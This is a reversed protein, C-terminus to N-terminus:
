ENISVEEITLTNGNYINLFKPENNYQKISNYGNIKLLYKFRTIFAEVDTVAFVVVDLERVVLSYVIKYFVDKSPRFGGIRYRKIKNM